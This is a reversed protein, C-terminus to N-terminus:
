AEAPKRRVTHSGSPDNMDPIEFIAAGDRRVHHVLRVLDYRGAARMASIWSDYTIASGDNPLFGVVEDIKPDRRTRAM